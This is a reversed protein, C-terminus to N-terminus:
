RRKNKIDEQLWIYQSLYKLYIYTCLYFKEKKTKNGAVKTKNMETFSLCLITCLFTKQLKTCFMKIINYYLTLSM